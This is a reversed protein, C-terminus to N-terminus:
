TNNLVALLKEEYQTLDKSINRLTASSIGAASSLEKGTPTKMDPVQTGKHELVFKVCYAAISSPHKGEGMEVVRSGISRALKIFKFPLNLKSAYLEILQDVQTSIPTKQPQELRTPAPPAIADRVEPQYLQPQPSTIPQTQIPTSVAITPSQQAQHLTEVQPSSIQKQAPQSPRQYQIDSPLLKQKGFGFTKKLKKYAKKIRLEDYGTDKAFEKLTRGGEAGGRQQRCAEWLVALIYPAKKYGKMTNEKTTEIRNFMEKASNIIYTPLALQENLENMKAFIAKLNRQKPDLNVTERHHQRLGAPGRGTASIETSMQLYPDVKSARAPDDMTDEFTRWEAGSDILRDELVCGCNSCVTEGMSYNVVSFTALEGGCKPCFVGSDRIGRGGSSARLGGM